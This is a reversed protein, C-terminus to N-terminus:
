LEVYTEGLNNFMQVAQNKIHKLEAKESKNNPRGLMKETNFILETLRDKEKERQEELVKLMNSGEEHKIDYRVNDAPLHKIIHDIIKNKPVLAEQSDSPVDINMHPIERSDQPM